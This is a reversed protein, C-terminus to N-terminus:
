AGDDDDDAEVAGFVTGVITVSGTAHAMEVERNNATLRIVRDTM